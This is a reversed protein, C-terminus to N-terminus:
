STTVSRDRVDRCRLVAHREACGVPRVTFAARVRWQSSSPVTRVHFVQEVGAVGGPHEGGCGQHQQHGRPEREEIAPHHARVADQVHHHHAEPRERQDADQPHEEAVGDRETVVQDTPQQAVGALVGPELPQHTIHGAVPATERRHGEDGELAHERHDRDGQDGTRHGVPGPEAGPQDEGPHPRAQDVERDGVPDEVEGARVVHSTPHGVLQARDVEGPAGRHVDVGACGPERQRQHEPRSPREASWM